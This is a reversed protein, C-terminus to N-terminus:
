CWDCHIITNTFILLTFSAGMMYCLFYLVIGGLQVIWKKPWMLEATETM